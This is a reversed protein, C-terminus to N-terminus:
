LSSTLFLFIFVFRFFYHKGSQMLKRIKSSKYKQHLVHTTSSLSTIIHWLKSRMLDGEHASALHPYLHHSLLSKTNELQKTLLITEKTLLPTTNTNTVTWSSFQHQQSPHSPHSPHIPLHLNSPISSTNPKYNSTQVSPIPISSLTSDNPLYNNINNNNFNDTVICSTFPPVATLEFANTIPTPFQQIPLLRQKLLTARQHIRQQLEQQRDQQLQLSRSQTFLSIDLLSRRRKMKKQDQNNKFITVSSNTSQNRLSSMSKSETLLSQTAKLESEIQKMTTVTSLIETYTSDIQQLNSHSGGKWFNSSNCNGGAVFSSRHTAKNSHSSHTVMTSQQTGGTNNHTIFYINTM